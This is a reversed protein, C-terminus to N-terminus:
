RRRYTYRTSYDPLTFGIEDFTGVVVVEISM